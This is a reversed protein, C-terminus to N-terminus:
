EKSEPNWAVYDATQRARKGGKLAHGSPYYAYVTGTLNPVHNRQWRYRRNTKSTPIENETYHLWGHWEPPVKSPEALGKYVVWRKEERRLGFGRVRSRYYRNGFDDEGVLEGFLMTYLSTGLSM